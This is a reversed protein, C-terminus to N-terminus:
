RGAGTSPTSGRLAPQAARGGFTQRLEDGFLAVAGAAAVVLFGTVLLLEVLGQRGPRHARDPRPPSAAM